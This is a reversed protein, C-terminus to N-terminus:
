SAMLQLQKKIIFADILKKIGWQRLVGDQQRSNSLTEAM